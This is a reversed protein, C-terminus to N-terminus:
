PGAQPQPLGPYLTTPPNTIISNRLLHFTIPDAEILISGNRDEVRASLTHTGRDLNNFQHSTGKVEVPKGDLLLVLRHGQRRKLRPKVELRVSLDGNNSRIAEDNKPTLIRLGQYVTRSDKQEVVSRTPNTMKPPTYVSPPPLDVEKAGPSPQDSYHVNGEEDVIKYIAAQTYPPMLLCLFLSLLRNMM